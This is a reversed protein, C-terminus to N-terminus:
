MAVALKWLEYIVVAVELGKGAQQAKVLRERAVAELLPSEKAERNWTREECVGKCFQSKVTLQGFELRTGQKYCRAVSWM